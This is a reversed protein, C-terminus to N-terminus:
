SKNVKSIHDFLHFRNKGSNKAVYMAQDAYRLLADPNDADRPYMSVGISASLKCTTSNVNIPEAIAALLREITTFCEDDLNLGLLLLVFEDGGLRAVTDGGRVTNEIRKAVEILVEDGAKHGMTDNIPKFGDLDLYCVAIISGDRIAQFIAQDMRDALLLRNPIGTLADYNASHTLAAEHEKISSIDSFVAVYRQAKGNADCISSISLLEAYLEGSKRRNWIEGRWYKEDGLSKWLKEYFSKSQQGSGLMKPNKGIVDERSYKTIRTFGPNVDVINNNADTIFIGEQINNFVSATIRLSEEARKRATIDEGIAQVSVLNGAADFFARNTWQHYTREGNATLNSQQHTEVPQEPSLLALRERVLKQDDTSLFEFFNRGILQKTSMGVLSAILGNAFTLTGDPQFAVVYFPMDEALRRYNNAAEKLNLELQKRDTVDEFITVFIDKQPSCVNVLFHRQLPLFYQEFKEPQQTTAVRSYIELFPASTVGYATTALKGIVADKILGTQNEFSPNVDLILYDIAVGDSDFVIRHLAMGESMSNFSARLLADGNLKDFNSMEM